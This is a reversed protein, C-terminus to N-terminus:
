ERGRAERPGRVGYASSAIGAELSSVISRVSDKFEFGFCREFKKTSVSFDYSPSAGRDVVTVGEMEAAVASAIAGVTSNFSAVNYIGPRADSLLIRCVARCLDGIGLIPRCIHTNYVAIHRQSLGSEYMRNIMLDTRLNPSSGNVTGLRLAYYDLKSLSAYLDIEKKTLDYYNTATYVAYDEEAEVKGTSGYVSSSSAYIFRQKDLKSTLRVFGDVNHEFSGLMDNECMSVSSYGAFLLVADFAGLEDKTLDRYDRKSNPFCRPNGFWELDLSTVQHGDAHLAPFLSTGIYGCGGLLLVKVAGSGEKTPHSFIM